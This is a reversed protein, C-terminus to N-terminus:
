PRLRLRFAVLVRFISFFSFPLGSPFQAWVSSPIHLPKPLHICQLHNQSCRRGRGVTCRRSTRIVYAGSGSGRLGPGQAQPLHWAPTGPLPSNSTPPPALCAHQSTPRTQKYLDWVPPQIPLCRARAVAHMDLGMGFVPSLAVHRHLPPSRFPFFSRAHGQM